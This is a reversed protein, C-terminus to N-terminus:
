FSRIPRVAFINNKNSSQNGVTGLGNGFNMQLAFSSGNESSTWYQTAAFNGINNNAGTAGQGINFYMARLEEQSPLYWDSFGGQTYNSCLDAAIGATTCGAIIDLTNQEGTGLATGDAGSLLTGTCGWEASVLDSMAAVLGSGTSDVMIVIGGALTDGVNITNTPCPGWTPVCNCMTLTQGDTGPPVTVWDTGDFYTMEGKVPNAPLDSTGLSTGIKLVGSPDAVVNRDGSGMLTNSQITGDFEGTAQANLLIISFSFLCILLLRPMTNSYKTNLYSM